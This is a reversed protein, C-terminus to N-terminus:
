YQLYHNKKKLYTVEEMKLIVPNAHELMICLGLGDSSTTSSPSAVWIKRFFANGILFDQRQEFSLNKFHHSFANKGIKDVTGAGGSLAESREAKLFNNTLSTVKKVKENEIDTLDDRVYVNLSFLFLAIGLIKILM